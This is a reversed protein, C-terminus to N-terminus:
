QSVAIIVITIHKTTAPFAVDMFIARGITRGIASADPALKFATPLIEAIAPDVNSVTGYEPVSLINQERHSQVIFSTYGETNKAVIRGGIPAVTSSIISHLM